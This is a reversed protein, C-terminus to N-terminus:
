VDFARLSASLIVVAFPTHIFHDKFFRAFNYGSSVDDIISITVLSVIMFLAVVGYFIVGILFHHPKLSIVVLIVSASLTMMLIVAINTLWRASSGITSIDSFGSVYESEIVGPHEVYEGAGFDIVYDRIHYGVLLYLFASMILLIGRILNFWWKGRNHKIWKSM